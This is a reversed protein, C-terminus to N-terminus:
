HCAKQPYLSTVLWAFPRYTIFASSKLNKLGGAFDVDASLASFAVGLAGLVCPAGGGTRDVPPGTISSPSLNRRMTSCVEFM